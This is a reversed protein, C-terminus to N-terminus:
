AVKGQREADKRRRWGAQYGRLYGFRFAEGRTMGRLREGLRKAYNALWAQRAQVMNRFIGPRTRHMYASACGISHFQARRKSAIFILGCGRCVKEFPM